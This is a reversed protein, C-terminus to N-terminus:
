KLEIRIRKECKDTQTGAEISQSVVKGYGEVEVTLGCNELLYLADNLGMGIVNPVCSTEATVESLRLAGGQSDNCNGWGEKASPTITQNYKGTVTQMDAVSGGKIDSIPARVGEVEKAYDHDRNYLYTAIQKQVPGTLGAGYYAKKDHKKTFIATMVIYRPKDAPLYTVMSGYYYGDQKRYRIKNITTNVQATGTKSGTSFHCVNEGFYAKATGKKSVDEMFRRLTNITSQSCISDEWIRIPEESVVEGNREVRLILRPAILKGGNIVSNYAAITHLPTIDIGYGYGMNVLANYRSSHRRDLDSFYKTHAAGLYELGVKDNFRFKRCYDSFEKPSDKFAEYVATTFYVNASEYFARHMDIVGGSDEGIKHSDRVIAGLKGGVHVTDGLGSHYRKTTPVGKELLAMASILKFTSGPNIPTGIAYNSEGTVCRSGERKLNALALIDGTECEMVISTGWIAEQEIIQDRLANHVIDQIDIDLTTVVDLGDEVPKNNDEKIRVRFGPTITQMAQKGKEGLLTDRLAFEIGHGYKRDESLRGITRRALDGQPYIRYDNDHTSYTVQHGNALLPFKKIDNWEDITVDRFIRVNRNKRNLSDIPVAVVETEEVMKKRFIRFLIFGDREYKVRTVRKYEITAKHYKMLEDYYHKASYDGFYKSLCRALEEAEAKFEEESKELFRDNGFDILLTLRKISKALPRGDRSYITGRLPSIEESKIITGKVEEFGKAVDDNFFIRILIFGLFLLVVGTFILHLGKIRITIDKKIKYRQEEM